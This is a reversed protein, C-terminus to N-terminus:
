SEITAKLALSDQALHEIMTLIQALIQQAKSQLVAPVKSEIYSVLDAEADTGALAAIEAPLDKWNSAIAPLDGTLVSFLKPLELVVSTGKVEDEVIQIVDVAANVLAKLEANMDREGQSKLNFESKPIIIRFSRSLLGLVSGSGLKQPNSGLWHELIMYLLFALTKALFEM